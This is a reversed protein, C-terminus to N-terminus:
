LSGASWDPQGLAHATGRCKLRDGNKARAGASLPHPAGPATPSIRDATQLIPSRRTRGKLSWDLWTLPSDHCYANNNGQQTRGVEDGMLMMPVGQSLFLMTLANKIQRSSRRSRRDDTPGEVGCNWSQNDNAGDSNNEGNAENHKDSYSVLDALTFGDHCTVFNVSATPRSQTSTPRGLLRQAMEGTLGADGKLFQPCLRPVQWELRGLATRQFPVSKYLGGRGVGRCDLKTKGLIPDM